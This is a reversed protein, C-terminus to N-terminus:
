NGAPVLGKLECFHTIDVSSDVAYVDIQVESV